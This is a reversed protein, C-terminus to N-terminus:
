VRVSTGQGCLKNWEHNTGKCMLTNQLRKNGACLLKEMRAQERSMISTGRVNTGQVSTGQKRCMISKWARKDVKCMLMNLVRKNGTWPVQETCAQERYM